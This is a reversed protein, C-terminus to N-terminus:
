ISSELDCTWGICTVRDKIPNPYCKVHTLAALLDEDGFYSIIISKGYKKVKEQLRKAITSKYVISAQCGFPVLNIEKTCHEFQPIMTRAECWVEIYNEQHCFHDLKVNLHAEKIAELYGNKIADERGSFSGALSLPVVHKM